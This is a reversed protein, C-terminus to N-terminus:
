NQLAKSLENSCLTSFLLEGVSRHRQMVGRAEISCSNSNGQCALPTKCGFSASSMRYGLTCWQLIVVHRRSGGAAGGRRANMRVSSSIAAAPSSATECRLLTRICHWCNASAQAQHTMGQHTTRSCRSPVAATSPLMAAATKSRILLM